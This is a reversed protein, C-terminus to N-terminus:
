KIKIFQRIITENNKELVVHYTGVPEDSLFVHYYPEALDEDREFLVEGKPDFVVVTYASNGPNAFSINVRDEAPNPYVAFQNNQPRIDPKDNCAVLLLILLYLVKLKM